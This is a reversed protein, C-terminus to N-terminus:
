LSERSFIYYDQHHSKSPPPVVWITVKVVRELPIIEILLHRFFIGEQSHRLYVIPFFFLRYFGFRFDESVAGMM